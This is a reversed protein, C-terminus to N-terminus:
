GIADLVARVRAVLDDPTFPKALLTGGTESVERLVAADATYGSMYIVRLEARATRLREALERGGMQPMVVDTLLLHIPGPHREGLLLAEGPHRAELVAYGRGLLIEGALRRVAEEDEVLLVTESGRAPEVRAPEPRPAAVAVQVRPLYIRFTAGRGPDSAVAIHGGSQQVIGYVTALGLGTGKGPAKTTFFPEFLHLKTEADIGAGTDSVTVLVHPGPEVGVHLRAFAEDLEVDSTEITLRGGHPMADRANVALNMLVQQLQGPDAKIHGLAPALITVLAIDEGILHRLMPKMGEVIANPDVIKPQLVQKRSFALLQRTLAAAQQATSQILGSHRRAPDDPALPEQLLQVHGIIVTLLNNFDHAVGGALRGVAELKQAHRLEDELRRVASVDRVVAVIGLDNGQKGKLPATTMEAPVARGDRRRVTVPASVTGTRTALTRMLLDVVDPAHAFAELYPRGGAELLPCELLSEAVPNLTVVQGGLDLTVVGSTLSSLINDTYGKLDSLESFRRSLEEHSTALASRQDRLQDAMDNFAAALRGIEDSASPPIRHELDGRAVAAVGAALRRVPRAIHRAVLAAALGGLVLTMAALVLLESRTRAIEAEMPKRSLGVRATGWRQEGAHLPHSFDYHSGGDLSVEQVLPGAAAAALQSTADTLLSGVQEPHRSHAVLRGELDLILAYEVDAEAAMRSVNQELTTFNYVLFADTSMAALSRVLVTGRREIERIIAARQRHEVIATLAGMVVVIVLVTGWLLKTRLSVFAPRAPLRGLRRGEPM